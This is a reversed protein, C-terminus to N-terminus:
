HLNAVEGQLNTCEQLNLKSNSFEIRKELM